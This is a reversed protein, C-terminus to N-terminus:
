WAGAACLARVRGKSQVSVSVRFGLGLGLGLCAGAEDTARPRPGGKNKVRVSVLGLGLGYAVQACCETAGVVARVDREGSAVDCAGREHLVDLLPRRERRVLQRADGGPVGDGARGWAGHLGGHLGHHMAWGAARWANCCAACSGRGESKLGVRVRLGM